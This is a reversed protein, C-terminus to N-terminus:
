QKTSETTSGEGGAAGERKMVEACQRDIQASADDRKTADRTSGALRDRCEAVTWDKKLIRPEAADSAQRASAGSRLSPDNKMMEACRAENKLTADDSRSASRNPDGMYDRCQQITWDKNMTQDAPAGQAWGSAAGLSLCVGLMTRTMTKM